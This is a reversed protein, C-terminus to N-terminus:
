RFEFRHSHISTGILQLGERRTPESSGPKVTKPRTIARLVGGPGCRSGVLWSGAVFVQGVLDFEPVVAARTHLLDKGNCGVTTDAIGGVIRSSSFIGFTIHCKAMLIIDDGARVRRLM